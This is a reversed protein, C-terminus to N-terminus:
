HFPARQSAQLVPRVSSTLAAARLAGGADLRAHLTMALAAARGLTEDRGGARPKLRGSIRGAETLIDEHQRASPKLEILVASVKTTWGRDNKLLRFAFSMAHMVTLRDALPMAELWALIEPTRPDHMAGLHPPSPAPDLRTRRKM